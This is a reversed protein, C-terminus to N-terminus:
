DNNNVISSAEITDNAIDSNTTDIYEMTISNESIIEVTDDNVVDYEVTDPLEIDEEITAINDSELETYEQSIDTLTKDTTSNIKNIIEEDSIDKNEIMNALEEAEKDEKEISEFKSKFAEEFIVALKDQIAKANIIGYVINYVSEKDILNVLMKYEKSDGFRKNVEEEVLEWALDEMTNTFNIVFADISLYKDPESKDLSQVVLKFIRNSMEDLFKMAEERLEESPTTKWKYVGVVIAFVAIIVICIIKGTDM